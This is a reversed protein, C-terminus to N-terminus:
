WDELTYARLGIPAAPPVFVALEELMALTRPDLDSDPHEDSQIDYLETLYNRDFM